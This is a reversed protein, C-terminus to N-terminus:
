SYDLLFLPPALHVEPEPGRYYSQAAAWGDLRPFLLDLDLGQYDHPSATLARERERERERELGGASEGGERGRERERHPERGPLCDLVSTGSTM